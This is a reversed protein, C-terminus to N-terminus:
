LFQAHFISRSLGFCDFHPYPKTTSSSRPFFQSLNFNAGWTLIPTGTLIPATQGDVTKRGGEAEAPAFALKGFVQLLLLRISEGGSSKTGVRFTVDELRVRSLRDHNM